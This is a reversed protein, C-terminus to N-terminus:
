LITRLRSAPRNSDSHQEREPIQYMQSDYYYKDFNTYTTININNTKTNYDLTLTYNFDSFSANYRFSTRGCFGYEARVNLAMEEPRSKDVIRAEVYPTQFLGKGKLYTHFYFEAYEKIGSFTVLARNVMHETKHKYEYLEIRGEPNQYTENIDKTTDQFIIM